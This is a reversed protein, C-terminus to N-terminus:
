FIKILVKNKDSLELFEIFKKKFKQNNIKIRFLFKRVKYIRPHPVM